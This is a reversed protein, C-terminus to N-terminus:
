GDDGRRSNAAHSWSVATLCDPLHLAVRPIDTPHLGKGLCCGESCSIIGVREWWGLPLLHASIPFCNERLWDMWARNGALIGPSSGVGRTLEQSGSFMSIIWGACVASSSPIPSDGWSFLPLSPLPSFPCSRGKLQPKPLSRAPLKAMLFELHPKTVASASLPSAHGWLGEHPNPTKDEGLETPLNPNSDRWPWWLAYLKAPSWPQLPILSVALLLETILSPRGM